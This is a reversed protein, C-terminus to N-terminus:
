QFGQISSRRPRDNAKLLEALTARVQDTRESVRQAANAVDASQQDLKAEEVSVPAPRKGLGYLKRLITGM